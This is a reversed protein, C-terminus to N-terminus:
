LNRLTAQKSSFKSQEPADKQKGCRRCELYLGEKDPFHTDPTHREEYRHRGLRCRLGRKM